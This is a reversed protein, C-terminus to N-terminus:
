FSMMIKKKKLNFLILMLRIKLKLDKFLLNDNMFKEITEKPYIKEDM